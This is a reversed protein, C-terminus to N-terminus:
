GDRRKWLRRYAQEATEDEPVPWVMLGVLLILISGLAAEVIRVKPM